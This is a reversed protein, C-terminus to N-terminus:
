SGRREEWHLENDRSWWEAKGTKTDVVVVMTKARDEMDTVVLHGGNGLRTGAPVGKMTVSM